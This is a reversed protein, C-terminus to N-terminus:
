SNELLAKALLSRDLNGGSLIAVARKTGGSCALAAAVAVAGSPEAILRSQTAIQALASFIERESVTVIEDVFACLHPWNRRGVKQVRLGDAATRYMHEATLEVIRHARFSEYADAALEPEAGVIRVDPKLRKIAAALGGILGGGGIPAYLHTLDPIAAIIELGITGAGALIEDADYPVIETYGHRRALAAATESRESSAPGVLVMEAGWRRVGDLKAQPTNNPMVTIARIGLVQAAYAVAQAHNGSSHAVIGRRRQAETLSLVANFAGRIKFAGTPHLSEAKLLLDTPTMRVIPTPQVFPSIRKAASHIEDLTILREGEAAALGPSPAAAGEAQIAANQCQSPITV